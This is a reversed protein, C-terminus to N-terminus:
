QCYLRKKEEEGYSCLKEKKVVQNKPLCIVLRIHRYYQFQVNLEVRGGSVINVSISIIQVIDFASLKQCSDESSDRRQVNSSFVRNGKGREINIWPDRTTAICLCPIGAVSVKPIENVDTLQAYFSTISLASHKTDENV